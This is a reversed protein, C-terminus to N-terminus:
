AGVMRMWESLNYRNTVRAIKGDRIDFFAGVRLHYTQGNAEPLGEDTALYEGRIFFEAAARTPDDSTFVVLDEVSERYCRDMRQLFGRFAERGTETAGENIEHVVDDTLMELLSERDGSNFAAYYAEILPHM